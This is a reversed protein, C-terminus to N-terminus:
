RPIRPRMPTRTRFGDSAVPGRDLRHLVPQIKRKPTSPIIPPPPKPSPPPPPDDADDENRDKLVAITYLGVLLPLVGLFLVVLAFM